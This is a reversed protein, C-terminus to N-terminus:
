TGATSEGQIAAILEEASITKLIYGEAGAEFMKEKKDAEDYMSLAIVRTKPLLRKIQRTAQEGGMLPMSVDMLVVDPQLDMAMNIAERGDPAEGVVEIDPTERLLAALGQRVVDHDDVVLVRLGGNSSPLSAVAPAYAIDETMRGRGKAKPGDPVMLTFRSGKGKASKIKMHGGLLEVRERISFLGVGPTEKLEQPDFGRGQDCVSLCVGRGIRRVRIAAERVRAHKIANFLMEQAARFLFTALAESRLMLDGSLNMSVSLGHQEWVRNVLWRLVEALDNMNMVAPSLDRSLGRSREIAEKLMVDVEEIDARVRDDKARGKVLSLHFKAGAIQQQLDEHLIVAIRRREREEAQTLELTLKQLQTARRQLEVTRQAVKAELTANWEHLAEEARKHEILDAAQRALVDIRWLDHEDPVHPVSWQTTLIGLLTGQRDLLPTSQVARVGADRLVRLSETGAFLPSREVDEVVMRQNCKMAEGCVSARNEASAFFDLFPPEHGRHAVIRLSDGEILQLTGHQAGMIAVAVDMIEQLLPQLQGTELIRGSLTHMQTLAALDATLRAEAQKRETIDLILSVGNVQQEDLTASGILVPLRSGDKRIYEKEFPTRIVGTAKLEEIAQDDVHHYEPPTMNLWNIRGSVLDEQSYGVMDLFRDNAELISGNLDWYVVGILGSDYLGRLRQESRGVAEEAQQRRVQEEAEALARRVAPALRAMRQKLVYDSAGMKLSEIATDEGMTGSLFVFPVHPCLQKALRLAEMPDTGPLTYDSLILAYREHELADRFGALTDVREIRAPLGDAHLLGHVLETDLPDDELHLIRLPETM